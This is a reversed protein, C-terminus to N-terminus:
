TVTIFIYVMFKRIYDQGLTGVRLMLWWNESAFMRGVTLESLKVSRRKLKKKAPLWVVSIIYQGINM